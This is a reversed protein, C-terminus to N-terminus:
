NLELSGGDPQEVNPTLRVAWFNTIGYQIELEHSQRLADLEEGPTPEPLGWHQAGRYEAEISGKDFDV